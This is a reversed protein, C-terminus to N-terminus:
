KTEKCDTGDSKVIGIIPMDTRLRVSGTSITREDSVNISLTRFAREVIISFDSEVKRSVDRPPSVARESSDSFSSRSRYGV